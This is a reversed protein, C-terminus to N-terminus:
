EANCIEIIRQAVEEPHDILLEGHNMKTFVVVSAGQKGIPRYDIITEYCTSNKCLYSFFLLIVFGWM